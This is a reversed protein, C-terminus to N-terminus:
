FHRGFEEVGWLRGDPGQVVSIGIADFSGMINDRHGPSNMWSTHMANGDMTGPGVILNEGLSNFNVYLPDRIVGGLDQHSFNGTSAMWSAHDRANCALTSNWWLGGLGAAARDANVRNLITFTIADPPGGPCNREPAPAPDCAAGVIAIALVATALLGLRRKRSGRM